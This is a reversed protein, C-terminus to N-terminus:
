ESFRVPLRLFCQGDESQQPLKGAKINVQLAPLILKPMSLKEDRATRMNVYEEKNINQNIHINNQKQELVSTQWMLERGKPMYDHCMYLKTSDPLSLIKQISQYLQAADGDPFDCRATGFDPMFLTDGVFAM